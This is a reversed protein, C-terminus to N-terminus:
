QKAVRERAPTPPQSGGGGGAHAEPAQAPGRTVPMESVSVRTGSTVQGLSTIVLEDGAELGASILADGDNQWAIDIDTRKLIGDVVVYVYSGQYSTENPIVIADEMVRGALKATVYQGIKLPRESQRNEGFPDSIQAVVHLQQVTGDIAGETRVLDGVWAATGGLNSTLQVAGLGAEPNGDFRFEEPLDIFALDRNRLPLRVEIADVAYIDAIATNVGIVQGLDVQQTLVRGAFPAVIETRELNLRAKTLSAEASRVRAQAAMKQPIRLVLDSPQGPRDLQAWDDRAQEV